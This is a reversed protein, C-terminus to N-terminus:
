LQSLVRDAGSVEVEAPSNEVSFSTIKLDDAILAFRCPRVGFNKASLDITAGLGKSFALDVDSAFHTDEKGGVVRGWGSMVFPDNASIVYVEYGKSKFENAKKVYDPIHTNSCTNTFAGPVGIVVVKKGAFAKHTNITQPVGCASFSEGLDPTYPVEVLTTDPITDGVQAVM